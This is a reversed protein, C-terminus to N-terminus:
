ESRPLTDPQKNKFGLLVRYPGPTGHPVLAIRDQDAIITNTSSVRGNIFVVEVDGPTLGLGLILDSVCTGEALDMTVNSYAINKQKLKKQLFSFANFTIIPV